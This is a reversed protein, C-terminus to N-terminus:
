LFATVFPFDFYVLCFRGWIVNVVCSSGVQWLWYYVFVLVSLLWIDPDGGLDFASKASVCWSLVGVGLGLLVVFTKAGLVFIWVKVLFCSELYLHIRFGIQVYPIWRQPQVFGNFLFPSWRIWDFTSREMVLAGHYTEFRVSCLSRSIGNTVSSIYFYEVMYRLRSISFLWTVSNLLGSRTLRLSLRCHGESRM